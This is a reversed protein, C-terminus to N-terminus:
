GGAITLGDVRVTPSDTGRRFRLDNAPTMALFIQPLTGAITLGSVPEALAGNRIMFGAAGRSYDGTLGNVGMGILETVYIGEAIDAMLEAPSMSGPELWLNSPAPSPPGSVGRSAHGTTALGLQRATRSDLFWTTLVGGEVVARPRGPQGEGDFPRSRLGRPRTPDDRVTIGPAMVAEGLRGALFTTGRAVAAGNIAASLHGLLSGAVRPDYVVPRRATAPRTPNLRRVAREGAARGLAAPDELDSLHVTSSWDYDREMGTGSGALATVSISHGTRAYQGAFGNSAVLTVASRSWGAEAGESNTVGAVALAAEEAAAARDTLAAVDPEAPDALDLEPPDFRVAEPLGAFADEPVARAMAVAREALAAFGAPDPDTTSVIAQRRGVFVRLGLDLGEAREVKEVKGLRRAVSLAMGQALLADAADAGAARAAAVLDGLRSPTGRSLGDGSM